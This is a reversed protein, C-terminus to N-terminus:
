PESRDLLEGITERVLAETQSSISFYEEYYGPHENPQYDGEPLIYGMENNALGLEFLIHGDPLHSRYGEIAAYEKVGWEGGFDHSSAPRGVSTEPFVEGPLTVVHLTGLQLHMLNQPMCGLSGCIEDDYVWEDYAEMVGMDFAISFLINEFPFLVREFDLRLSGSIPQANELIRLAHEGVLMGLSVSMEPGTDSIMHPDDVGDWVPYGGYNRAPITLGLPTMLGGVTGSFYLCTGGLEHEMKWRTYRPFDATYESSNIFAEPHNHWNVITAVTVDDDTLLKAVALHDNTIHPYRSDVVLNSHSASPEDIVGEAALLTVPVMRSSLIEVMFVLSEVLYDVYEPCRGSSFESEGWVGITDPAEHTHTSSIMVANRNVGLEELADWVKDVDSILWGVLDLSVLIAHVGDQELVLVRAELDDLVGDARRDSSTGGLFQTCPHNTEDPTIYFSYAAAYLRGDHPNNFLSSPEDGDPEDGDPADGDPDDGDPDDGDLISDKPQCLASFGDESSVCIQDDECDFYFTECFTGYCCTNDGECPEGEYSVISDRSGSRGDSSCYAHDCSDASGEVRECDDSSDPGKDIDDDSDCGIILLLGALCLFVLGLMSIHPYRM